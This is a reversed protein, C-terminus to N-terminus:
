LETRKPIDMQGNELVGVPVVQASVKIAPIILHTPIFPSVAEKVTLKKAQVSSKNEPTWNTKEPVRTRSSQVPAPAPSQTKNGADQACGTFCVIFSLLLLSRKMGQKIKMNLFFSPNYAGEKM